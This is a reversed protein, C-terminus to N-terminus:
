NVISQEKKNKILIIISGILIGMINMVVDIVTDKIIYKGYLGLTKTNFLWDSFLELPEWLFGAILVITISIFFSKKIPFKYWKNIFDTFVMIGLLSIIFHAFKDYEFGIEYLKYFGLAGIGSILLSIAIFKQLKIVTDKKEEEKSCFIFQPILILFASVFAIAGMFIPNYFDPFWKLDGLTLALGAIIFVIVSFQIFKNKM